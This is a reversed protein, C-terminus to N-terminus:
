IENYFFLFSVHKSWDFIQLDIDTEILMLPLTSNGTGTEFTFVISGSELVLRENTELDEAYRQIAPKDEYVLADLGIEYGAEPQLFWFNQSSIEKADWADSYNEITKNEELDVSVTSLSGFIKTLLEVTGANLRVFINSINVDILSGTIHSQNWVVTISMPSIVEASSKERVKPDYICSTVKLNSITGM